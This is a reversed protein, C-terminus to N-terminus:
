RSAQLEALQDQLDKIQKNKDEISQLNTKQAAINLVATGVASIFTGLITMDDVNMDESIVIAVLNPLITFEDPSINSFLAMM